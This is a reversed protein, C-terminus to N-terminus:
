LCVMRDRLWRSKLRSRRVSRGQLRGLHPAFGLRASAKDAGAPSNGSTRLYTTAVVGVGALEVKASYTSLARCEPKLQLVRVISPVLRLNSLVVYGMGRAVCSNPLHLPSECGALTM